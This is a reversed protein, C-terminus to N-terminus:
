DPFCRKAHIKPTAANRLYVDNVGYHLGDLPNIKMAGNWPKGAVLLKVTSKKVEVTKVFLDPAIRIDRSTDGLRSM